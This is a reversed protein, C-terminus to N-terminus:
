ENVQNDVFYEKYTENALKLQIEITYLSQKLSQLEKVWTEPNWDKSGPRLSETSEPALDTLTNIKLILEAKEQKLKNVLNQQAIEATQAIVKARQQLTESGNNGILKEFKNM